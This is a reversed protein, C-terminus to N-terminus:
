FSRKQIVLLFISTDIFINANTKMTEFHLSRHMLSGATEGFPLLGNFGYFKLKLKISIFSHTKQMIKMCTM